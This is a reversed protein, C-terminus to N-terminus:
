PAIGRRGMMVPIMSFAIGFGGYLLAVFFMADGIEAYDLRSAPLISAKVLLALGANRLTAEITVALRDRPALRGLRCIAVAALQFLFTM